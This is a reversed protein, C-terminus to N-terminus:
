ITNIVFWGKLAPPGAWRYSPRPDEPATRSVRLPGSPASWPPKSSPSLIGTGDPTIAMTWTTLTSNVKGGYTATGTWMRAKM